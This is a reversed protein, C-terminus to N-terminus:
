SPPGSLRRDKQRWEERLWVAPSAAPLDAVRVSVRMSKGCLNAAQFPTKCDDNSGWSITVSLVKAEPMTACLTEFGGSKPPLLKKYATAKDSTYRTGEPFIIVSAAERAAERGCREVAALDGPSGGRNVFACGTRKCSSGMFPIWRLQRKLVWRADPLGLRRALSMIVFIDLASRHNSVIVYTARGDPPFDAPLDFAHRINLCRCVALFM